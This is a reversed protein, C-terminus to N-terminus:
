IRFASGQAGFKPVTMSCLAYRLRYKGTSHEHSSPYQRAASRVSPVTKVVPKAGVTTTAQKSNDNNSPLIKHM